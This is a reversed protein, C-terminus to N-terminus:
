RTTEGRVANKAVGFKKGIKQAVKNRDDDNVATSFAKIESKTLDARCLPTQKGTKISEKYFLIEKGDDSIIWKVATKAGKPVYTGNIKDIVSKRKGDEMRAKFADKGTIPADDVPTFDASDTQEATEETRVEKNEDGGLYIVEAKSNFLEEGRKALLEDVPDQTKAKPQSKPTKDIVEGVPVLGTEKKKGAGLLGAFLSKVTKKDQTKAPLEEGKVEESSKEESVEIEATTDKIDINEDGATFVTTNTDIAESTTGADTRTLRTTNMREFMTEIQTTPTNDGLARVTLNVNMATMMLAGVSSDSTIGASRYWKERANQRAREVNTYNNKEANSPFIDQENATRDPFKFGHRMFNKRMDSPVFKGDATITDEKSVGLYGLVKDAIVLAQRQAEPLVQNAPSRRDHKQDLRYLMTAMNDNLMALIKQENLLHADTAPRKSKGTAGFSYGTMVYQSAMNVILERIDNDVKVESDILAQITTFKIADDTKVVADTGGETVLRTSIDVKLEKGRRIRNVLKTLRSDEPRTSVGNDINLYKGSNKSVNILFNTINETYGEENLAGERKDTMNNYVHTIMSKRTTPCGVSHAYLAHEALRDLKEKQEPINPSLLAQEDYIAKIEPDALDYGLIYNEAGDIKYPKVEEVEETTSTNDKLERDQFRDDKLIIKKKGTKKDTTVFADAGVIDRVEEWGKENMLIPKVGSMNNYAVTNAYVGSYTLDAPRGESQAAVVERMISQLPTYGKAVREQADLVANSKTREVGNVLQVDKDAWVGKDTAIDIVQERVKEIAISKGVQSMNSKNAKDVATVVEELELTNLTDVAEADIGFDKLRKRGVAIFSDKEEVQSLRYANEAISINNLSSFDQRQNTLYHKSNEIVRDVEADLASEKEEITAGDQNLTSGNIYDTLANNDRFIPQSGKYTGFAVIRMATLRDRIVANVQDETMERFKSGNFWERYQREYRFEVGYVKALQRILQMSIEM